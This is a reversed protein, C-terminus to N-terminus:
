FPAEEGRSALAAAVSSGQSTLSVEYEDGDGDNEESATALTAAISGALHAYQERFEGIICLLQVHRPPIGMSPAWIDSIDGSPTKAFWDTLRGTPYRYLQWRGSQPDAFEGYVDNTDNRFRVAIKLADLVKADFDRRLANEFESRKRAIEEERRAQARAAVEEEIQRVEARAEAILTDLILTDIQGADTTMM